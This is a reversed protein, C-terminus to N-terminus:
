IKLNRLGIFLENGNNYCFMISDSILYRRNNYYGFYYYEGIDYIQRALDKM